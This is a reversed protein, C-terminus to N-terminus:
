AIRQYRILSFHETPPMGRGHKLGTVGSM